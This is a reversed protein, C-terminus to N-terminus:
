GPDIELKKVAEKGASEGHKGFPDLM